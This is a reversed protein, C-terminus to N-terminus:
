FLLLDAHIIPAGCFLLLVSDDLIPSSLSEEGSGRKLLFSRQFDLSLSFTPIGFVPSFDVLFLVRCLAPLADLDNLSFGTWFLYQTCEVEFDSTWATWCVDLLLLPPSSSSFDVSLASSGLVCRAFAM